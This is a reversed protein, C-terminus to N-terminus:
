DDAAPVTRPSTTPVQGAAHRGGKARRAAATVPESGGRRARWAAVTMAGIGFVSGLGWWVANLFPVLGVATGIAWGAFLAGVRSRPERVLLRGVTYTVWAQGVLWLLGLGLLIALGFPLGVITAAAAVAVLPVVLVLVFGWGISAFPATLGAAAVRDAGRPAFLLLVLGALLVSAAMAASPLLIGLVSVSGALTFSVGQRVDGGVSAGEVVIVDDGALVSGTVQATANLRVSGDLAVVDGSVQGSVVISGDFVVVDGSAVGAISASGSFVVVQGVVRGRPVIADGSLIVQAPDESRRAQAVAATPWLTAVLAVALFTARRM